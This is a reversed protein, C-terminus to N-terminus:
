KDRYSYSKCSKHKNCEAECDAPGKVTLEQAMHKLVFNPIWIYGSKKRPDAAKGSIDVTIKTAAAGEEVSVFTLESGSETSLSHVHEQEVAIVLTATLLFFLAILRGLRQRMRSEGM